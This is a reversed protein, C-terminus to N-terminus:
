AKSLKWLSVGLTGLAIWTGWSKLQDAFTASQAAQRDAAQAIAAAQLAGATAIGGAQVRAAELQADAGGHMADVLNQLPSALASLDIANLITPNVSVNTSNNATAAATTTSSSGGSGFVSLFDSFISM